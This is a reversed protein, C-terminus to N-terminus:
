AVRAFEKHHLKRIESAKQKADEINKFSGLYTSQGNITLPVRWNKNENREM